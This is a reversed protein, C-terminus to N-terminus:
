PRGQSKAPLLTEAVERRNHGPAGEVICLQVPVCVVDSTLRLPPVVLSRLWQWKERLEEIPVLRKYLELAAHRRVESLFGAYVSSTGACGYQTVLPFRMGCCGSLEKDVFM